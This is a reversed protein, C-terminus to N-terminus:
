ISEEYKKQKGLVSGKRAYVKSRKLYDYILNDDM